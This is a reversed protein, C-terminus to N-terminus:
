FDTWHVSLGTFVFDAQCIDAETSEVFSFPCHLLLPALHFFYIFFLLIYYKRQNANGKMPTCSKGYLVM